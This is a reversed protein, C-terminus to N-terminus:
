DVKARAVDRGRGHGIVFSQINSRRAEPSSVVPWFNMRKRMLPFALPGMTMGRARLVVHRREHECATSATGATRPRVKEQHPPSVTLDFGEMRGVPGHRPTKVGGNFAPANGTCHKEVAVMKDNGCSGSDSPRTQVVSGNIEADVEALPPTVAHGFCVIGIPHAAFRSLQPHDAKVTQIDAADVEGSLKAVSWNMEIIHQEKM